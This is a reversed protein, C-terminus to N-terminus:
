YFKDAHYPTTVITAANATEIVSHDLIQFDAMSFTVGGIRLKSNLFASALPPFTTAPTQTEGTVATSGNSRQFTDASGIGNKMIAFINGKKCITVYNWNNTDLVMFLSRFNGDRDRYVIDFGGQSNGLTGNARMYLRIGTNGGAVDFVTEGNFGGNAAFRFWFQITFDGALVSYDGDYIIQDVGRDMNLVQLGGANQAYTAPAYTPTGIITTNSVAGVSPTGSGAFPFNLVTGSPAPPDVPESFIPPSKLSFKTSTGTFSIGM